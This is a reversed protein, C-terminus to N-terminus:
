CRLSTPALYESRAPQGAGEISSTFEDRACSSRLICKPATRSRANPECGKRCTQGGCSCATMGVSIIACKLGSIPKRIRGLADTSPSTARGMTFPRAKAATSSAACKCRSAAPATPRAMICFRVRDAGGSNGGRKASAYCTRPILGAKAAKETRGPGNLRTDCKRCGARRVVRLNPCTPM